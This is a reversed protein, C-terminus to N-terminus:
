TLRLAYGPTLVGPPLVQDTSFTFFELGDVVFAHRYPFWLDLDETSTVAVGLRRVPRWFTNFGLQFEETGDARPWRRVVRAIQLKALAAPLPDPAGAHAAASPGADGMSEAVRGDVCPRDSGDM